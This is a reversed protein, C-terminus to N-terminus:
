QAVCGAGTSGGARGPALGAATYMVSQYQFASRFSREFPLKGVRRVLEEPPLPSRYWLFDHSAIGTRHTLLDRLTVEADALPDALHFDPWHKRVLDDWGLKGDDALMALLATTFAKTCSALPFITDATVPHERGLERRGYGNLSVVRDRTVIVVAAGPVEWTALADAILKDIPDSRPRDDPPAALAITSLFVAGCLWTRPPC